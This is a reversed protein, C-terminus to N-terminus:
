SLIIGIFFNIEASVNLESILKECGYPFEATSEVAYNECPSFSAASEGVHKWEPSHWRTGRPVAGGSHFCAASDAADNAGHHFSQLQILKM